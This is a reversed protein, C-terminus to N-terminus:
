RGRLARAIERLRERAEAAAAPDAAADDEAQRQAAQQEARQARRRLGEAAAAFREITAEDRLADVIDDYARGSRNEGAHYPSAAHGEIALMLVDMEYLLLASRVAQRRTPGFACRAVNKHWMFAWHEFLARDAERAPAQATPGVLKLQAVAM